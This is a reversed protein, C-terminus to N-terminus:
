ENAGAQDVPDRPKVGGRDHAAVAPRRHLTEPDFFKSHHGAEDAMAHCRQTAIHQGFELPRAQINVPIMVAKAGDAGDLRNAVALIHTEDDRRWPRIGADIASPAEIAQEPQQRVATSTLASLKATSAEASVRAQVVSPEHVRRTATDVEFPRQFDAVFEAPM